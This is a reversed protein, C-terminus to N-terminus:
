PRRRRAKSVNYAVILAVVLAIVFLTWEGSTLGLYERPDREIHVDM